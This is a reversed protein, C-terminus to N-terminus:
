HDPFYLWSAYGFTVDLDTAVSRGLFPPDAEVTSCDCTNVVFDLIDVHYDYTAINLGMVPGLFMGSSHLEGTQIGLVPELWSEFTTETTTDGYYDM